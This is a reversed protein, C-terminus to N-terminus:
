QRQELEQGEAGCLDSLRKESREGHSGLDVPRHDLRINQQCHNTHAIATEILLDNIDHEIITKSRDDQTSLWLGLLSLSLAAASPTSSSGPAQRV